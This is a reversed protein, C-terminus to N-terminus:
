EAGGATAEVSVGDLADVKAVRRAHRGGEFEADLFADLMEVALLPGVVGAGIALVNCNTHERARQASWTDSCLGARIGAVKNAVISVGVGNSCIVVGLEAEGGAVAEAVPRAYDPYDVSEDSNTGFDQVTFGREELHAVFLAKLAVGSHDSGIAIRV